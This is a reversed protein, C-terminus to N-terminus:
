NITIIEAYIGPASVPTGFEYDYDYFGNYTGQITIYQNDYPQIINIIMLNFITLM